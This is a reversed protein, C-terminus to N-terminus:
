GLPVREAEARAAWFSMDMQRNMAVAPAHHEESKARDGGSLHLKGLGLHCHAM